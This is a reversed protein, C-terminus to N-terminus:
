EVKKVIFYVAEAIRGTSEIEFGQNLIKLFKEWETMETKLDFIFLMRKIM